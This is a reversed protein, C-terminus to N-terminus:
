KRRIERMVERHLAVMMDSLVGFMFIQIGSIVLLVALMTLPLHDIGKFWELVIYVGLIMGALFVGTGMLGFHLMPNHTRALRYITYGIKLGDHLPNLKTPAEEHRPLYTIPVEAVDLRKKVCEVAMESEIEFGSKRLDMREIARHNFGRYGSLIDNLWLGYALGFLKNLIKNGLLNLRTFAGARYDAFRNGIVHDAEDNILPGLIKDIEEPKYTGDGDIMVVYEYDNELLDFAQKVADGKGSGEQLVVRAGAGEAIDQTSDTSHGDVVLVDYGMARFSKVLGGITHAENLTPIFVCVDDRNMVFVGVPWVSWLNYM